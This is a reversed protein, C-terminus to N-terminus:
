TKIERIEICKKNIILFLLNKYIFCSEAILNETRSNLVEKKIVKKKESDVVLLENLFGKERSGRHTNLFILSDKAFIEAVEVITGEPMLKEIYGGDNYKSLNFNEPYIFQDFSEKEAAETIMQNIPASDEGLEDIIQGTDKDLLFYEQTEFKQRFAFVGRENNLLFALDPEQWLYSQKEIDYCFIGKHFPLGQSRYSHFLIRKGKFVEVGSWFKEPTCFKNLLTRGTSLEFVHYFAERKDADREEVLLHDPESLMLRWVKYEFDFKQRLKLQKSIWM